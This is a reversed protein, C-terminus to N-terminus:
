YNTLKKLIRGFGVRGKFRSIWFDVSLSHNTQCSILRTGILSFTTSSKSLSPSIADLFTQHLHCAAKTFGQGGVKVYLLEQLIRWVCANEIKAMLFTDEQLGLLLELLGEAFLIAVAHKSAIVFGRM